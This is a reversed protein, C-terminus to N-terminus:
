HGGHGECAGGSAVMRLAGAKFAAITEGVTGHEARFVRIRDLELRELAGRGIGAVVMGDLAEGRLALLPECTGQAHDAHQNPVARWTGSETDVIMFHSALGFHQCVPSDLGRDENIPICVHM